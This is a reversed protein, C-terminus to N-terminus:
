AQRAKLMADAFRYFFKARIDLYETAVESRWEGTDSSQSAMDGQMALGAFQDRLDANEMHQAIWAIAQQATCEGAILMEVISEISPIM